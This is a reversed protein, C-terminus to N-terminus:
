AAVFSQQLLRTVHKIYEDASWGLRQTLERWPGPMTLVYFLDAAAAVTWGEALNGEDAIRQIIREHARRRHSMRDRWAAGLAEDEQQAAELVRAVPDIEATYRSHLEIMRAMAEVGSPAERVPAALEALGLTEDMHSVLGLLLGRRDGFHLYIAQRSVGASEAVDSLRVAAGQRGILEWTAELM